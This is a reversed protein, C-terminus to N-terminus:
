PWVNSLTGLSVGKGKQRPTFPQKESPHVSGPTAGKLKKQEQRILENVALEKRLRRRASKKM